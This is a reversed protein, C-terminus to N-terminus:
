RLGSYKAPPAIVSWRPAAARARECWKIAEQSDILDVVVGVNSAGTLFPDAALVRCKEYDSLPQQAQVSPVLTTWSVCGAVFASVFRRIM